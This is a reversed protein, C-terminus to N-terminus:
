ETAKERQMEERIKARALILGTLISAVHMEGDV